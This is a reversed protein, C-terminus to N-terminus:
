LDVPIEIYHDIFRMNQESDLVELLASATDGKYDSSMKDIEDLLMLPNKVGANKIGNVIRGPM